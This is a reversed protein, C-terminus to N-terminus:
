MNGAAHTDNPNISSAEQLPPSVSLVSAFVASVTSVTVGSFVTLIAGTGAEGSKGSAASDILSTLVSGTPM